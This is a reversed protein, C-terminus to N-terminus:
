QKGGKQIGLLNVVMDICKQPDTELMKPSFQLVKWGLSVALNHKELDKDSGHWGGGRVGWANGNVEVAVKKHQWCYDFRHKRGLHKDFNYEPEPEPAAFPANIRWYYLFMAAKDSTTRKREAPQKSM